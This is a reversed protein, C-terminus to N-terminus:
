ILKLDAVAALKQAHEKDIEDKSHLFKYALKEVGEFCLYLGGIVLLLRDVM